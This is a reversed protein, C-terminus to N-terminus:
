VSVEVEGFFIPPEKIPLPEGKMKLVELYGIIAERANKIADELTNGETICGPLAPVTVTYGGDEENWELIVKFRREM